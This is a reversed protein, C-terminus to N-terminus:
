AHAPVETAPLAPPIEHRGSPRVHTGHHRQKLPHPRSMERRRPHALRWAPRLRVCMTLLWGYVAIAACGLAYTIM